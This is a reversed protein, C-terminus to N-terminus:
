ELAPMLPSGLAAGNVGPAEPSPSTRVSGIGRKAAVLEVGVGPGPGIELVSDSLGIQLKDLVWAPLVHDLAM